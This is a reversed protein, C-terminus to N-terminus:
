CICTVTASEREHGNRVTGTADAADDADAPEEPVSRSIATPVQLSLSFLRILTALFPPVSYALPPAYLGNNLAAKQLNPPVMGNGARRVGLPM